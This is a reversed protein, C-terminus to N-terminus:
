PSKYKFSAPLIFDGYTGGVKVDVTGSVHAGTTVVIQTDTLSQMAAATGGFTVSTINTFNKGVIRVQTGGATTGSVTQLSQVFPPEVYTYIDPFTRTNGSTITIDTTGVVHTPAKLVIQSDTNSIITANSGGFAVSSLGSFNAGTIKVQTDGVTSGSVPTISNIIPEPAAVAFANSGVLAVVVLFVSAISGLLAVKSKTKM